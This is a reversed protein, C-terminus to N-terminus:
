HIVPRAVPALTRPKLYRETQLPHDSNAGANFHEANTDGAYRDTRKYESGVYLTKTVPYQVSKCHPCIGSQIFDGAQAPIIRHRCRPCVHVTKFGKMQKMDQETQTVANAERQKKLIVDAADTGEPKGHEPMPSPVYPMQEPPAPMDTKASTDIAESM